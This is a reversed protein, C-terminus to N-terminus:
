WTLDPSPIVECSAESRGLSQLGFRALFLKGVRFGSPKSAPQHRTQMRLGGSVAGRSNFDVATNRSAAAGLLRVGAPVSLRVRFYIHRLLLNTNTLLLDGGLQRSPSSHHISSTTTSQVLVPQFFVLESWALSPFCRPRLLTNQKATPFSCSTAFTISIQCHQFFFIFSLQFYNRM